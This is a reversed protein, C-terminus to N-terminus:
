RNYRWIYSLKYIGRGKLSENRVNNEKCLEYLRSVISSICVYMDRLAEEGYRKVIITVVKYEYYTMFSM